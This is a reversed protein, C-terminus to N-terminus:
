VAQSRHNGPLYQNEGPEAKANRDGEVQLEAGTLQAIPNREQREGEASAENHTIKGPVIEQEPGPSWVRTM